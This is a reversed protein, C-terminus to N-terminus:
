GQFCLVFGRELFRTGFRRPQADAEFSLRTRTSPEYFLTALKKHACVEQYKSPDAVIRNALSLLDQTEEVTFDLPDILHRM